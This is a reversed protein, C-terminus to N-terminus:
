GARDFESPRWRQDFFPVLPSYLRLLTFWGEGPVTQIWNGEAVGDPREPGITITTSGDPNATAAPTPYGQGGARPFRPPTQLMSRTQNDYLTLSWFRGAPIDPPLTM